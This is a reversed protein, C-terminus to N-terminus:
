TKNLRRRLDFWADMYGVLMLMASLYGIIVSVVSVAFFAGSPWGRAAFTWYMLAWAQLLFVAFLVIGALDFLLSGTVASLVIVLVLFSALVRGFNLDRIRGFPASEDKLMCYLRYGALFLLVYIFWATVVFVAGLNEAFEATMLVSTDGVSQGFLEIWVQIVPQWFQVADDILVGTAVGAATAVIISAQMTLTLSKSQLLLWALAIMPVWTIAVVVIVNLWPTGLVMMVIAVIAVALGTQRLAGAMGQSLFLLVLVVGSIPQLIPILLTCSLVAVSNQARAVLWAAVDRM